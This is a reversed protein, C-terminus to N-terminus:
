ALYPNDNNSDGLNDVYKCRLWIEQSPDGSEASFDADPNDLYRRSQELDVKTSSHPRRTGLLGLDYMNALQDAFRSAEVEERERLGAMMEAVSLEYHESGAVRVTSIEAESAIDVMADYMNTKTVPPSDNVHAMGFEDSSAFEALIKAEAETVDGSYKQKEPTEAMTGTGTIAARLRRENSILDPYENIVNEAVIGQKRPDLSRVEDLAEFPETRSQETNDVSEETETDGM